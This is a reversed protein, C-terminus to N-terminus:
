QDNSDPLKAIHEIGGKHRFGGHGYKIQRDNQQGNIGGPPADFDDAPHIM